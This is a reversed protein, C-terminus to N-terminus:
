GLAAVADRRQERLEARQQARHALEDFQAHGVFIGGGNRAEMRLRLDELAAVVAAGGMELRADRRMEHGLKLGEDDGVAFM